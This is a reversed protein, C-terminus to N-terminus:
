IEETFLSEVLHVIAEVLTDTVYVEDWLETYVAGNSTSPYPVIDNDDLTIKVSSDSIFVLEGFQEHTFMDEMSFSKLIDNIENRLIKEEFPQIAQM